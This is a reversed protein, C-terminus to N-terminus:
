DSFSATPSIPTSPMQVRFDSVLSYITFLTVVPSLKKAWTVHAKAQHKTKQETLDKLRPLRRLGSEHLNVCQPMLMENQTSSAPPAPNGFDNGRNNDLADDQPAIRPIKSKLNAAANSSLSVEPSPRKNGRESVRMADLHPRHSIPPPTLGNSPNDGAPNNTPQTETVAVFPDTIRTGAEPM